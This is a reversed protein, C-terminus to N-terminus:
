YSARHKHLGKHILKKGGKVKSFFALVRPSVPSTCYPPLSLEAEDSSIWGQRQHILELHALQGRESDNLAQYRPDSLTESVFRKYWPISNLAANMACEEAAM